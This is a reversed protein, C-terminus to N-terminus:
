KSFYNWHETGNSRIYWLILLDLIRAGIEIFFTDGCFPPNILAVSSARLSKTPFAFGNKNNQFQCSSTKKVFFSVLESSHKM